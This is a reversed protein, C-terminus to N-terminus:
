KMIKLAARAAHYGCMGHVGGGPPTSSSCLFLGENGTAYPCPGPVPRAFIQRLDQVGGNIDGGICNPNYLEYGAATRTHRALILDRFGPAFREVQREIAETMDATSGNTVHCYAWGTHRGAPARTPDFLSPQALLVFPRLPHRGRWVEQESAAIEELTGGLHVTAARACEPARWPIPGALAWDIKFVGPGYRYSQLRRRYRPGLRDGAIEVLQRPTVDLLVTRAAPLEDLSHVPTATEIRGGLSQFCSALAASLNGAGGRPIPWGVAHGLLGLVLGVAASAPRDLPLFSHAALGALLARARPGRFQAEALGQASHLAHRAFRALLLPHRPLHPPALIESALQPWEEVLPQLLMRWSAGDEGLSSATEPLSRELLAATGDDLPHALPAPPHIWELGHESLPLTVFFPSAVGLPYVASCVDHVFGPLTLAASRVGGGIQEEGEVLTVTLGSRALEIAAALGNPGSGVVIADTPSLPSTMLAAEQTAGRRILCIQGIRGILSILRPGVKQTIAVASYNRLKLNVSFERCEFACGIKV